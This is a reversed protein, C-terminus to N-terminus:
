VLLVRQGLSEMASAWDWSGSRNEDRSAWCKQMIQLTTGTNGFAHAEEGLDQILSQFYTQTPVDEAMSGAICIPWILNRLAQADCIFQLEQLANMTDNVSSRVDDLKPDAGSIITNLYVQAAYAFVLTIARKIAEQQVGPNTLVLYAGMTGLHSIGLSAFSENIEARLRAIGDGLRRRIPDAKEFLKWFSLSSTSVADDKWAGLAAIDSIALAVWPQCPIINALDIKGQLLRVAESHLRPADSTSACSLIDFWLVAGVLFHEANDELSHSELGSSTVPTLDGPSSGTDTANVVPMGRVVTALADLHVQWQSTGGRFLEFSIFQVGCALIQLRRKRGPQVEDSVEYSSQLFIQLEQLARNHHENLESLTDHYRNGRATRALLSHQHLAGLSLAAHYLPKTETLLWLLWGRGGNHISPSYFRFQLAFVHDLYHMLLEAERHFGFRFYTTASPTPAISPTRSSTQELSRPQFDEESLELHLESTEPPADAWDQQADYTGASASNIGSLRPQRPSGDESQVRSAERKRKNNKKVADKIKKLEAQRTEVTNM